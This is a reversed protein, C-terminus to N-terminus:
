PQNYAGSNAVGEYQKLTCATILLSISLSM